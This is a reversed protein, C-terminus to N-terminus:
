LSVTGGLVWFGPYLPQTFTTHFTHLHTLTDSSVSYFSLAGASWDLYVGVRRSSPAPISTSNNNHLASFGDDRCYLSWSQDNRGFRSDSDWGGKRSIGKYAVAIDAEGSCEAEWYCRTGSLGERCLMQRWSDFREPHDPYPQERGPTHTVKRDGESLSLERHATNPDLTLQCAYKRLGAKLRIEGGHDVLLTELKLSPDEVGASLARMGSEGPHNYSLDLERLHSPNSHLASALSACGRETVLCGSMGLRQLKCHPDELGASLARVGSDQLDNDRLELERLESHHSRLVSALDDSCGETLNCCSLRLTQLKSKPGLADCLLKVGSDGLNSNTLDLARVTEWSEKRFTRSFIKFVKLKYKLGACLLKGGSEGLYCSSLDLTQLKCNPSMLAASLLKGGSEGLNSYSLDLKRLPSTASQPASAVIEISEDRLYCDSLKLTQLKCNPSMLAASLLKGGSEGLKNKSLDLERLPSTASQLASAVIEFSEDRLYCNRLRLTQIKCNPNMLLACIQEVGSGGVNNYSLDLKILSSTVSQLASIVTECSKENLNCSRLRLTQIKCNPSMLLACLQEVGLNNRRLDLERLSSSVSQLASIVTECSKENLYCDRLRLAQIDCVPSRLGACLLKVASEGLTNNSFDLERLQSNASQHFASAVLDCSQDNRLGPKLRIEGGHDVSLTQIKCNPSMLLACLQEVASDGLNNRRLDLERLSSTVSQLASIVTECSKENLNCDRLRLSQLKCNPSMLLACLQNMGSDGLNNYSLDLERLSSTVSQLASIVSECSKENLDCSSLRLAQIDCVPSRLGVCLLKVASEGLKNNSFDLERLQSNASQHLASAVVDCSEDNFRCQDMRLTSVKSLATCLLEVGSSGMQCFSLDLTQLKCNPSMLAASLLKGGSEGLKNKSLDLETLSSTASQLASAVIEFSTETLDCDRLRLSQIDCVPSRLGACLLKVASEGLKNNSFDLERLQSNASQHLASAVVDCSEDNFGCEDMRLTSVKSLGTCLLEVGSSGMQCFSLDLTQLKCNPSMLAASLLKGGSEGLKNKSLDLETLPSTTSQLASAVIEFCKETLNCNSLLAKRCCKVAPVLRRRGEDSTNYKKLDFEDLVDESMLLMNALASCHMPSIREHSESSLYKQVEKTLSDDSLETLSHFLNICREPSPDDEELEKIYQITKKISESNSGIETLLGKLLNQNSDLSLGLLFRLFLDLHGNKSELAKEVFRQHLNCLSMETAKSWRGFISKLANVNNSAYSDFVYLAALYEQISLHVFCYVKKQYLVSEEKFIETCVGSYVLAETVDIDCKRLDEEYFILNSKKLHQFALQGLKLIMDKDLELLKQPDTEYKGQYKQNKINSQILLFHTYMGTLTKPIEGCDAEGLLRELVTASIWCFVPIHCMINLSRSSKVHSIITSAQSEDSFRKRFYEEKQSDNFGRVETVRHVYEPPIQNAAAPRSTIWLLTSPLLNGKILNTLLVDVSSTETVDSLMENQQFNLPFRSEDLGDFIFLVKGVDSEINEIGRTEPHFVHLLGLLSYEEDDILNLERFPLVFMFRVDQNAKGEAWDLIFKQVSVTKGIGAIGKTLVTRIPKEQGPLLKFIDNFNIATDETTQTRSATEIQWVEHENNVRESDGETIYLETYINNLLTHKGSTAVGEFICEFRKKLSTKLKEQVRQACGKNEAQLDQDNPCLPSADAIMSQQCLRQQSMQECVASSSQLESLESPDPPHVDGRFEIPQDISRNSKVSQCSPVPSESRQLRVRPDPPHVDGRFEIPQDISRNSKVSQCSPVPSESRQLRVRESEHEVAGEMTGEKESRNM